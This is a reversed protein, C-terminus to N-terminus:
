VYTRARQILTEILAESGAVFAGFTGVAKGLTCMLVEPCNSDLLGFHEVIGKGQAGLVGFGHADDVMLWANHDAALDRLRILDALDGDMSFVGDTVILANGAWGRTLEDALKDYDRHPYRMLKARCGLAADILSAHNLRDQLIQDNGRCLASLVGLNAM